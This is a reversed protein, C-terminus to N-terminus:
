PNWWVLKHLYLMEYTGDGRWCEGKPETGEPFYHVDSGLGRQASSLINKTPTVLYSHM